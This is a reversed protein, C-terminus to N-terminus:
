VKRLWLGGLVLGGGAAAAIWAATWQPAGVYGVMTLVFVAVGIAAFRPLRQLTGALTYVLGVILAPFVLYARPDSARFVYFVSGVFVMIALAVVVAPLSSGRKKLRKTRGAVIISGLTGVGALPLWVLGWREPSVVACGGYGLIWILGWLILYPSAIAYGTTTRTRRETEEVEELAAAAQGPSITM